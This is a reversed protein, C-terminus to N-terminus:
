YPKNMLEKENENGWDLQTVILRNEILTFTIIDEMDENSKANKIIRELQQITLDFREM